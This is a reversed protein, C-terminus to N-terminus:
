PPVNGVGSGDVTRRGQGQGSRLGLSGLLGPPPPEQPLASVWSHGRRNRRPPVSESGPWSDTRTVAQM